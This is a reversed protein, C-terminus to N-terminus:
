SHRFLGGRREAPAARASVLGRSGGGGGRRGEEAAAPVRRRAFGRHHSAAAPGREQVRRNTKHTVETTRACRRRARRRAGAASRSTCRGRPRGTSPPQDDRPGTGGQNSPPGADPAGARRPHHIQATASGPSTGTHATTKALGRRAPGSGAPGQGSRNPPALKGAGEVASRIKELKANANERRPPARYQAQNHRSSGPTTSAPTTGHEM